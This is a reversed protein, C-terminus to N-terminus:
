LIDDQKYVENNVEDKIEETPDELYGFIYTYAWTGNDTFMNPKKNELTPVPKFPNLYKFPFRNSWKFIYQVLYFLRGVSREKPGSFLGIFNTKNPTPNLNVAVLDNAFEGIIEKKCRYEMFHWQTSFPTNYGQRVDNLKYKRKAIVREIKQHTGYQADKSFVYDKCSRM